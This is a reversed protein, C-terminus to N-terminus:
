CYTSRRQGDALMTTMPRSKPHRERVRATSDNLTQEEWLFNRPCIVVFGREALRLGLRRTPDGQDDAVTDITQASTAHFVVAAPYRARRKNSSNADQADPEPPELLYAEVARGPEVAYRIKTRRITGVRDESLTEVAPEKAPTPLPGLFENWAAVVARRQAQWEATRIPEGADTKLLADLKPDAVVNKPPVLVQEFWAPEAASSTSWSSLGFLWASLLVIGPLRYQSSM